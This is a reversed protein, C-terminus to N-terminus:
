SCVPAVGSPPQSPPPSPPPPSPSSPLPCVKRKPRLRWTSSRSSSVAGIPRSRTPILAGLTSGPKVGDSPMATASMRTAIWTTMAALSISGLRHAQAFRASVWLILTALPRVAPSLSPFKSQAHHSRMPSDLRDDQRQGYPRCSIRSYGFNWQEDEDESELSFQQEPSGRRCSGDDGGRPAVAHLVGCAGILILFISPHQMSTRSFPWSDVGAAWWARERGKYPPPLRPCGGSGVM